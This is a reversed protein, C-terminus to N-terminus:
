VPRSKMLLHERIVRAGALSSDPRGLERARRSMEELMEPNEMLWLIQRAMEGPEDQRLAVRKRMLFRSNREEQGPIPQCIFIPLGCALAESSTLGGPKSVIIDAAHMYHVMSDVFGHLRIRPDSGFQERLREYLSRNRGTIVVLQHAPLERRFQYLCEEIPGLGIGGGMLLITFRDPDLGLMRRLVSKPPQPKSFEPDIPIGTRFIAEDPVGFRRRIKKAVDEHAVLFFDVEPHVWFGNVDFDTIAAGLRFRDGMREKIVGMASLCFAHTCVVVDPQMEELWEQLRRSLLKGLSTRFRDSIEGERSYAAGWLAPAYQLTNLYVARTLQELQRSVRHMGCCIEANLEPEVQSLGQCLSRAAQYHGNGGITETLILVRKMDM